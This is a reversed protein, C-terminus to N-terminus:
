EKFYLHDSVNSPTPRCCLRSLEVREEANDHDYRVVFICRCGRMDHLRRQIEVVYADYYVAYNMREQFCMMLDGVKVRHCESPELPISRQRVANRVNVWEDETNSYGTFRVRAELEGTCLVRYTLFSSVDYWAYDKSSKAEYALESLDAIRSGKPKLLIEPENRSTTEDSLNDCLELAMHLSSLKAKSEKQKDEFWSQVQEWAIAPKGYRNLSSSFCTALEQCVEQNLANEGKEKYTNQLELIEALTFEFASSDTADM